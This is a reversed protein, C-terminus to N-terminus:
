KAKELLIEKIRQWVWEPPLIQINEFVEGSKLKAVKLRKEFPLALPQIRSFNFDNKTILRILKFLIFSQHCHRINLYKFRYSSLAEEQKLLLDFNNEELAVLINLILIAVNFGRKDKKYTPFKLFLDRYDKRRSLYSKRFSGLNSTNYSSQSKLVYEINFGLLKWLEKLPDSLSIFREHSNVQVLIDSAEIFRKTQMMLLFEYRKFTFWLHMGPNIHQECYQAAEKGQIYDRALIYNELKYIAFEALRSAPSMHPKDNIYEIAKGCIKASKLPDGSVQYYVYQLRFHSLRSFYTEHKRVLSSVQKLTSFIDDAFGEDVFISTAFPLLAQEELMEISSESQYLEFKRRYLDAYKKYEQRKGSQLADKRLEELLALSIFHLEYKESLHLLRKTFHIAASRNGLTLLSRIFFLYKYGKIIAKTHESFHSHSLDLLALQHVSKSVFYTKLSKYRTQSYANGFITHALINEDISADRVILERFRALNSEKRGLRGNGTANPKSYGYRQVLRVIDRIDSLRMPM